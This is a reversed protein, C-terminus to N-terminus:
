RLRIDATELDSEEQLLFQVTRLASGTVRGKLVITKVDGRRLIYNPTFTLHVTKGDLHGAINSITEGASTEMRLDSFNSDRATGDNTLTISKLLSDSTGSATLQLRALAQTAGYRM